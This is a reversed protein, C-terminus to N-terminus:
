HNKAAKLITAIDDSAMEYYDLYKKLAAENSASYEAEGLYAGFKIGQNPKIEKWGVSEAASLINSPLAGAKSNKLKGIFLYPVGNRYAVGIARDVPQAGPLVVEAVIAM